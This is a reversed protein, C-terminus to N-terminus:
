KKYIDGFLLYFWGLRFVSSYYLLFSELERRQKGRGLSKNISEPTHSRKIPEVKKNRLTQTRREEQKGVDRKALRDVM